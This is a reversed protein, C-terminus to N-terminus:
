HLSEENIAAIADRAENALTTDTANSLYQRFEERSGRLDGKSLLAKALFFHAGPFRSNSRLCRQFWDVASDWDKNHAALMGQTYTAMWSTSDLSLGRNLSKQAVTLRDISALELALNFHILPSDPFLRTAVENREVDHIQSLYMAMAQLDDFVQYDQHPAGFWLNRPDVLVVGNTVILGACAHPVFRGSCDKRVLVYNANLGIARALAVYLFTYEQCTFDVSPDLWRAFVEEATRRGKDDNMRGIRRTLGNFLARAKEMEGTVGNTLQHAWEKMEKTCIFPNTVLLLEAATLRDKLIRNLEDQTYNRPIVATVIHCIMLSKLRSVKKEEMELSPTWTGMSKAAALLKEYHQIAESVDNLWEFAQAVVQEDGPDSLGYKEALQLEAIAKDRKGLKAYARGLQAHTSGDFPDLAAASEFLSIMQVWLEQRASIEGLRIFNDAYDPAIRAAELFQERALAVKNQYLYILGLTSHPGASQPKLNIAARASEEAEELRGLAMLITALADRAQVFQSDASIARRLSKEVASRNTNLENDRWALAMAELAKDSSSWNTRMMSREEPGPRVSICELIANVLMLCADDLNSTTVTKPKSCEGSKVNMVQISLRWNDGRHQYSGWVVRHAEILKGIKQYDSSTMTKLMGEPIDRFAFKISSRPLVRVSKVKELKSELIPILLENWKVSDTDDSSSEFSLIGVSIRSSFQVNENKANDARALIVLSLYLILLIRVAKV